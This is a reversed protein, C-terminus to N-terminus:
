TLFVFRAANVPRVADEFQPAYFAEGLQNAALVDLRENARWVVEVDDPHEFRALAAEFRRLM